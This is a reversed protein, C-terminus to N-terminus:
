ISKKQPMGALLFAVVVLGFASWIATTVFGSEPFKNGIGALAWLLVALYAVDKERLSMAWALGTVVILIIVMWIEASIGFQGWGFFYLVDSINAITAVSIWGLYISFPLRALWREASTVNNEESRLGMYTLLLSVLLTLMAVVTLAFIQYHWFFIWAANALNGLVVWWGIRVLRPNERQTPLAQYISFAILGIYILGWISFVYGAPVFYTEFSDSIEGTTLGNLPLANALGNITLTLLTTLIVSIQRSINKM